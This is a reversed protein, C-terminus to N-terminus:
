SCANVMDQAVTKVCGGNLKFKCRLINRGSFKLSTRLIRTSFYSEQDSLLLNLKTVSTRKTEQM